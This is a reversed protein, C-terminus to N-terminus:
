EDPSDCAFADAGPAAVLTVFLLALLALGLRRARRLPVSSLAATGDDTPLGRDPGLSSRM